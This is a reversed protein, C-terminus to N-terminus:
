KANYMGLINIIEDRSLNMLLDIISLNAVFLNSNFQNYHITNDSEIFQLLLGQQEFEARNYLIEGGKSNVYIDANYIKCLQYLKDKASLERNYNINSTFEYQFDIQLYKFIEVISSSSLYAVNRNQGTFIKEIIPYVSSFYPAKSYVQSISLLIKRINHSFELDNIKSFSSAHNITLTFLQKGNKTLIYNRNIYGNKIYNVDDYFLFLDSHYALQYYGIYPFLYPQMVALIMM